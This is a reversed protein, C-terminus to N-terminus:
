VQLLRYLLYSGVFGTCGTLFVAGGVIPGLSIKVRKPEQLETPLTLGECM